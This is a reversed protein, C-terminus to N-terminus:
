REIVCGPTAGRASRHTEEEELEAAFEPLEEGALAGIEAEADKESELDDNQQEKLQGLHLAGPTMQQLIGAVAELLVEGADRERKLDHEPRGREQATEIDGEDGAVDHGLFDLSPM